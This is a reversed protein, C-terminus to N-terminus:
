KKYDPVLWKPFHNKVGDYIAERSISLGELAALIEVAAANPNPWPGNTAVFRNAYPRIKKWNEHRLRPRRTRSPKGPPKPPPAAPQPKADDINICWHELIAIAEAHSLGNHLLHAFRDAISPGEIYSIESM